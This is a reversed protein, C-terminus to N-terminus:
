SVTDADCESRANSMRLQGDCEGRDRMGVINPHRHQSRRISRAWGAQASSVWWVSDLSGGRAVRVVLQDREAPVCLPTWRWM